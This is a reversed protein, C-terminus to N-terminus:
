FITDILCSTRLKYFPRRDSHSGKGVVAVPTNEASSVEHTKNYISIEESKSIYELSVWLCFCVFSYLVFTCQLLWINDLSHGFGFHIFCTIVLLCIITYNICFPLQHQLTWNGRTINFPLVFSNVFINITKLLSTKIVAQSLFYTM